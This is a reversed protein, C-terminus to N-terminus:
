SQTVDFRSQALQTIRTIVEESGTNANYFILFKEEYFTGRVEWTLVEKGWTNVILAPRVLEVKLNPSIQSRLTAESLRPQPLDRQKHYM